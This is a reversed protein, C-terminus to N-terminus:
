RCFCKYRPDYIVTLKLGDRHEEVQALAHAYRFLTDRDPFRRDVRLRHPDLVVFENGVWYATVITRYRTKSPKPKM